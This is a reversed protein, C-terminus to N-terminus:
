ATNGFAKMLAQDIASLIHKREKEFLLGPRVHNYEPAGEGLAMCAFLVSQMGRAQKLNKESSTFKGFQRLRTIHLITSAIGALLPTAQSTGSLRRTSHNGNSDSPQRDTSDGPEDEENPIAATPWAAWVNEGLIGFNFSREMGKPSFKSRNGQDDTSHVCIVDSERAPYGRPHPEDASNNAAAAFVLVSKRTADHISKQIEHDEKRFAFSVSIIDVNWKDVAHKIARSVYSATNDNADSTEFARAIYLKVHPTAQLLLHTVHTGHGDHDAMTDTGLVFDRYEAIKGSKLNVYREIIPHDLQCGTDIIAVRPIFGDRFSHHHRIDATYILDHKERLKKMWRDAPRTKIVPRSVMPTKPENMGDFRNYYVARRNIPYHNKGKVQNLTWGAKILCGEIPRIAKAYYESVFERDSLLKPAELRRYEGASPLDLFQFCFKITSPVHASYQECWELLIKAVATPNAQIRRLEKEVRALHQGLELKALIVALDFISDVARRPPSGQTRTVRLRTSLLIKDFDINPYPDTCQDTLIRRFYVCNTSLPHYVWNSGLLHLLARTLALALLRKVPIPLHIDDIIEQLSIMHIRGGGAAVQAM